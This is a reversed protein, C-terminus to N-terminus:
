KVQEPDVGPSWQHPKEEKVKKEARKEFQERHTRKSNRKRIEESVTDHEAIIKRAQEKSIPTGDM